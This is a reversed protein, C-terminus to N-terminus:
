AEEKEKRRRKWFIFFLIGLGVLLLGGGILLGTSSEEEPVEFRPALKDFYFDGLLESITKMLGEKSMGLEESHALLYTILDAVTNIGEAELDIDKLFSRHPGYGHKIMYELLVAPDVDVLLEGFMELLDEQPFEKGAVEILHKILLEPTYLGLKGLNISDLYAKMEGRTHAKFHDLTEQVPSTENNIYKVANMVDDVDFENDEAATILHEILEEHMSIGEEDLDLNLLYDYLPGYTNQLMLDRFQEADSKSEALLRQVELQDADLGVEDVHERLHDMLEEVTKINNAKLDLTELYEKLPSGSQKMMQLKLLEAENSVQDLMGALTKRLDSPDIEHQEAEERILEMLMPSDLEKLIEPDMNELVQKLEEDAHEVLLEHLIKGDGGSVANAVANDIDKLEYGKEEADAELYELLEVTSELELEEVNMAKLENKLEGEAYNSLHASIENLSEAISDLTVLPESEEILPPTVEVVPKEPEQVIEEPAAFVMLTKRSIDSNEDILELEITNLGEQPMVEYTFRRKDIFFTDSATQLTDVYVNAILTSNKELNMNIEMMEGAIAELDADELEIKNDEGTLIKPVYPKTELALENELIIGAKDTQENIEIPQVIDKFTNSRVLLNYIGRPALVTFNMQSYDPVSNSVTDGTTRDILYIGVEDEETLTGRDSDLFGTIMYMRPNNDSYVDLYYIDHLGQTVDGVMSFYANKGNNVPHFFLDNDTTNIPYGLNIPTDWIGEAIKKSYFVDYGGMNYHGYSSFYLTNGDESIFPTEENYRSNITEGLNVPDGWTGNPQKESRYIDLGGIGGRRNSTFYLTNGDKSLSGHSEWYKTNINGGIKQLATWRGDEFKSEYLNGIFEDSRYIIMYNGDYSLYTPYVDGDVGLEPIINRPPQWVGDVKDSVFTADYFRQESVFVMRQGDGSVIPNKDTFRTNVLPPLSSVDFDVPMSMLTKATECIKIQEEVLEVDYIKEDLIERFHMYNELAKDIDNNVLYANGLYFFAELPATKEKFNNEKYRPNINQSAKELYRISKDKQYPDNLFCVGIKYNINDNEPDARHIKLYLPLAENYEEFLFYSEAALFSEKLEDVQAKTETISLITLALVFFLSRKM